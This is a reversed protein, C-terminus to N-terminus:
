SDHAFLLVFAAFTVLLFQFFALLCSPFPAFSVDQGMHAIIDALISGMDERQPEEVFVVSDLAARCKMAWCLEYLFRAMPVPDAVKFGASSGKWEQLCEETVYKNEPSQPSMSSNPPRPPLPPSGHPKLVSAPNEDFALTQSPNPPRALSSRHRSFSERRTELVSLSTLLITTENNRKRRRPTKMEM